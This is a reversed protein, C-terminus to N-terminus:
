KTCRVLSRFFVRPDPYSNCPRYRSTTPEETVLRMPPHQTVCNIILILSPYILRSTRLYDFGQSKYTAQTQLNLQSIGSQGQSGDSTTTDQKQQSLPLIFTSGSTFSLAANITEPGSPVPDNATSESQPAKSRAGAAEMNLISGVFSDIAILYRCRAFLQGSGGSHGSTGQEVHRILSIDARKVPEAKDIHTSIVHEVFDDHLVTTYRCWDWHCSHLSSM